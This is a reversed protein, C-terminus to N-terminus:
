TQETIFRVDIHYAFGGDPDPLLNASQWDARILLGGTITLTISEIWTKFADRATIVETPNTDDGWISFQILVDGPTKDFSEDTTGDNIIQWTIYNFATNEPAPFPFLGTVLSAVSSSTFATNIASLLNIM